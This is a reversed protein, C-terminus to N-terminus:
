CVRRGGESERVILVGIWLGYRGDACGGSLVCSCGGLAFMTGATKGNIRFGYRRAICVCNLVCSCLV